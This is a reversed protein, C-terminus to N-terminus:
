SKRAKIHILERNDNQIQNKDKILLEYKSGIIQENRIENDM